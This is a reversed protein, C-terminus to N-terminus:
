ECQSRSRTQQFLRCYLSKVNYPIQFLYKCFKCKRRENKEEFNPFAYEFQGLIFHLPQESILVDSNSFLSRPFNLIFLFIITKEYCFFKSLCKIPDSCKSSFLIDFKTIQSILYQIQLIFLSM